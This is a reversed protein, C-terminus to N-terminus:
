NDKFLLFESLIPDIHGVTKQIFLNRLESLM